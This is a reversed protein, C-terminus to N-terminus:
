TAEDPPRSAAAGPQPVPRALVLMRDRFDPTWPSDAVGLREAAAVLGRGVAPRYGGLRSLYYRVSFTKAATAVSLLEYGHRALLRGVSHRTFYHVHTPIVSWWRPGLARALRSGADPLALALVGDPALLGRVQELAVGPDPLHEIVDGLHVVQLSGPPIVLEALDCTRVDLGFRERALSSAWTSPEVGLVRWGRERAEDLLFGVWCGVDLLRGPPGVHREIRMLTTRATLRQGREEELYDGSAADGYAGALEGPAPLRELQMHGCAACRVVDALATGFRDTSPILGPEGPEGAVSLHHDLRAGGCAM